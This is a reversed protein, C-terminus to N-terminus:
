FGIAREMDKIESGGKKDLDPTEISSTSKTYVTATIKEGKPGELGLAKGPFAFSSKLSFTFIKDSFELRVPGRFPASKDEVCVKGVAEADVIILTCEHGLTSMGKKTGLVKANELGEIVLRFNNERLKPAWVGGPLRDYMGFKRAAAVMKLAFSGQQKISVTDELPDYTSVIKVTGEANGGAWFSPHKNGEQDLVMYVPYAHPNKTMDYTGGIHKLLKEAGTDIPTYDLKPSTQGWAPAGFFMLCALAIILHRPHM